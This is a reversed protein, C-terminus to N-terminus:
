SGCKPATLPTASVLKGTLSMSGMNARMILGVGNALVIEELAPRGNGSTDNRAYTKTKVRYAKAARLRAALASLPPVPSPMVQDVVQLLKGDGEQDFVLASLQTKGAAV